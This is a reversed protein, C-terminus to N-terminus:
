IYIRRRKNGYELKKIGKILHKRSIFNKIFKYIKLYKFVM